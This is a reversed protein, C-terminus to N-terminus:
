LCASPMPFSLRLVADTRCAMGTDRSTGWTFRKGGEQIRFFFRHTSNLFMAKSYLSEGLSRLHPPSSFTCFRIVNNCSQLDVGQEKGGVGGAGEREREVRIAPRMSQLGARPGLLRKQDEGKRSASSNIIKVSLHLQNRRLPKNKVM